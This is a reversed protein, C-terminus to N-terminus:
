RPGAVRALAAELAYDRAEEPLQQIAELNERAFFSAVDGPDLASVQGPDAVSQVLSQGSDPATMPSDGLSSAHQAHRM